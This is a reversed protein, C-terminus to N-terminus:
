PPPPPLPPPPPAPPRPDVPADLRGAGQPGPANGDHEPLEVMAVPEPGLGFQEVGDALREAPEVHMEEAAQVGVLPTRGHRAVLQLAQGVELAHLDAAEAEAGLDPLRVAGADHRNRALLLVSRFLTTYPFLTDTRTSRPPRRIM